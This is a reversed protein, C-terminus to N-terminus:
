IQNYIKLAKCPLTVTAIKGQSMKKGAKTFKCGSARDIVTKNLQTTNQPIYSFIMDVEMDTVDNGGRAKATATLAEYDSQKLEISGSYKKNGDSLFQPDDGAGYHEEIDKDIEYEVNLITIMPAGDIILSFEKWVFQLIKSNFAM